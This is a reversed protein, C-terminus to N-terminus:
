VNETDSSDDENMMKLTYHKVLIAKVDEPSNAEFNSYSVLLGERQMFNQLSFSADSLLQEVFAVAKATVKSAKQMDAKTREAALMLQIKKIRKLGDARMNAVNVGDSELFESSLERDTSISQIDSMVLRVFDTKRNKANDSM